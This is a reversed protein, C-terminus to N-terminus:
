FWPLLPVFVVLVAISLIALLGDRVSLALAALVIAAAPGAVAFPILGVPIMSLGLLMCMGALIRNFPWQTLFGFRPYVYRDVHEAIPQVRGIAHAFKNRSFSFRKLRGPVWPSRLGFLLQAAILAILIGCVAPVGPIAGTPLLALLGPVLMLPGYGRDQIRALVDGLTITEGDIDRLKGLLGALNLGNRHESADANSQGERFM